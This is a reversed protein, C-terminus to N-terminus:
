SLTAGPSRSSRLIPIPRAARPNVTAEYTAIDSACVGSAMKRSRTHADSVHVLQEWDMGCRRTAASGITVYATQGQFSVDHPGTAQGNASAISPLGTAVREQQGNLLRTLAGTPGYSQTEGQLDISPGDGGRGAEAVYLAGKPGFTLGRPNDLGNMVVTTMQASVPSNAGLTITTLSVPEGVGSRCIGEIEHVGQAPGLRRRTIADNRGTYCSIQVSLNVLLIFLAVKSAVVGTNSCEYLLCRTDM